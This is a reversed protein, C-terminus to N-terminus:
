TLEFSNMKELVQQSYLWPGITDSWEIGDSTLRLGDASDSALGLELLEVVEPFDRQLDSGFRASYAPKSVGDARLLSKIVYRRQQEERNLWAGYEARAFDAANRHNFEDVIARVGLQAVAYETSYHLRQTYSRAGPGIGVMGDEQCCYESARLVDSRRFLRMSIQRYGNSVLFDRGQRYLERRRDGPRKGCRDLNTLKRVYLPYLYIEEPEWELARRLTTGWRAADQGENGYILDINFVEIGSIRVAECARSVDEPSQPRKLELLDERVFSQLGMSVRDIGWDKLLDLKQRSVTGPSVEFSIPINGFSIPWVERLHSFLTDLESENLFSPTGGGFAAQTVSVPSVAQAVIKSQKQITSLTSSVFGSEPQVTTFLNCFGCRMECFPLHVYLFLSSRDEEVWLDGLDAPPDLPRYSTKHPYAYAYGEFADQEM